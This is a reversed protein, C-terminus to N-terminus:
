AQVWHTIRLSKRYQKLEDTDIVDQVDSSLEARAHSFNEIAPLPRTTVATLIDDTLEDLGATNGIETFEAYLDIDVDCRWMICKVPEKTKTINRIVAYPAAADPPAKQDYVATVGYLETLYMQRIFRNPDTM